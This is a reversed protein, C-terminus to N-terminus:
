RSSLWFTDGVWVRAKVSVALGRNKELGTHGPDAGM